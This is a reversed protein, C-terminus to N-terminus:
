FKHQKPAKVLTAYRVNDKASRLMPLLDAMVNGSFADVDVGAGRLVALTGGLAANPARRLMRSAAAAVPGRLEEASLGTM